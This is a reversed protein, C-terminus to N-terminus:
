GLICVEGRRELWRVWAKELKWPHAGWGQWTFGLLCKQYGDYKRDYLLHRIVVCGTSPYQNDKLCGFRSLDRRYDATVHCYVAKGSDVGYHLMLRKANDMSKSSIREKAPDPIRFFLIEATQLLTRFVGLQKQEWEEEPAIFSAVNVDATALCLGSIKTGTGQGYNTCWNFRVVFDSADVVDSLDKSVPANGVVMVRRGELTKVRRRFIM